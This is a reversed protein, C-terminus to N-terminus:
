ENVLKIRKAGNYEFSRSKPYKQKFEHEAVPTLCIEFSNNTSFRSKSIFFPKTPHRFYMTYDDSTSYEFPIHKLIIRRNFIVVLDTESSFCPKKIMCRFFHGLDFDTSSDKVIEEESYTLTLEANKLHNFIRAKNQVVDIRGLFVNYYRNISSADPKPKPNAFHCKKFESGRSAKPLVSFNEFEQRRNQRLAYTMKGTHDTTMDVIFGSFEYVFRCKVISTKECLHAQIIQHHYDHGPVDCVNLFFFDNNAFPPVTIVGMWSCKPASLKYKKVFITNKVEDISYVNLTQDRLVPYEYPVLLFRSNDLWCHVTQLQSNLPPFDVKLQRFAGTTPFFQFLSATTIKKVEYIELMLLMKGNPSWKLLLSDCNQPVSTFHYVTKGAKTKIESGFTCISFTFSLWDKSIFAVLDFVPNFTVSLIQGIKDVKPPFLVDVIWNSTRTLEYNTGNRKETYKKRVIEYYMDSLLDSSYPLNRLIDFTLKRLGNYGLCERIIPSNFWLVKQLNKSSIM